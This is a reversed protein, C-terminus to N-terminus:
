GERGGPSGAMLRGIRLHDFEARSLGGVVQGRYMVLIRDCLEMLEDLDASILLISGGEARFGRLRHQIFATARVDLGRTPNMAVLIKGGTQGALAMARSVLLRQINGGSLNGAPTNEDETAIGYEAILRRALNRVASPQLFWSRGVLYPHVGLTLNDAVSHTPLLGDALRDEPIYLLGRAIREQIPARSVDVGALEVTGSAIPLVGVIADALERQGNGAVGAVGVMEGAAVRFTCGAVTRAGSPLVVDLNGVALMPEAERPATRARGADAEAGGREGMMMGVMIDERASAQDLTGVVEGARMITIRDCNRVVERIKHTIFIVSLGEAALARVTAFLNEVEQPTLLTTPEDLILVHAGRYLAKLIEVKQQAGVDLTQVPVSLEVALGVRRALDQVQQRQSELRLWWFSGEHGLLINELAGLHSVLEVHQHVMGIRHRLADRPATIAARRGDIWISGADARYLGSLINM